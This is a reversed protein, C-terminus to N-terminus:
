QGAKMEVSMKIYANCKTRLSQVETELDTRRRSRQQEVTNLHMKQFSKFTRTMDQISKNGCCNRNDSYIDKRTRETLKEPFIDNKFFSVLGVFKCVRAPGLDGACIYCIHLKSKIHTRFLWLLPQGM